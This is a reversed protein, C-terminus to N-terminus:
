RRSTDWLPHPYREFLNARLDRERWGPEPREVTPAAQVNILWEMCAATLKPEIEPDIVYAMYYAQLVQWGYDYWPLKSRTQDKITALGKKDSDRHRCLVHAEEKVKTGEWETTYLVAIAQTAEVKIWQLWWGTGEVEYGGGETWEGGLGATFYQKRRETEVHVSAPAWRDDHPPHALDYGPYKRALRWGAGTGLRHRELRKDTRIEIRTATVNAWVDSALEQSRCLLWDERHKQWHRRTWGQYPRRPKTYLGLSPEAIERAWAEDQSEARDTMWRLRTGIGM